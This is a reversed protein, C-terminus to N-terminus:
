SENEKLFKNLEKMIRNADDGINALIDHHIDSDASRCLELYTDHFTRLDDKYRSDMDYSYLEIIEQIENMLGTFRDTVDKSDEPTKTKPSQEQKSKKQKDLHNIESLKDIIKLFAIKSNEVRQKERNNIIESQKEILTDPKIRDRKEKKYFYVTLGLALATSILIEIIIMLNNPIQCQQDLFNELGCSM